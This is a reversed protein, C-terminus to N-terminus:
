EVLGLIVAFPSFNIFVDMLYCARQPEGRGGLHKMSRLGNVGFVWWGILKSLDPFLSSV